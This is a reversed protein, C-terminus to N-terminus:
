TSIFISVDDADDVLTLQLIDSDALTLYNADEDRTNRTFCVFRFIKAIVFGETHCEAPLFINTEAETRHKSTSM